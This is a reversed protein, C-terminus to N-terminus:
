SARLMTPGSGDDDLFWQDEATSTSWRSFRERRTIHRALPDRWQSRGCVTCTWRERPEGDESVSDIVWHHRRCRGAGPDSVRFRGLEAEMAKSPSQTM